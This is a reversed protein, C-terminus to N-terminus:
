ERSIPFGFTRVGGRANFYEWFADDRISFGSEPFYRGPPAPPPPPAPPTPGPPPPVPPPPLPPPPAGPSPPLFRRGPVGPPGVAPTPTLLQAAGTPAAPAAEGRWIWFPLSAVLLLVAPLGRCLGQM